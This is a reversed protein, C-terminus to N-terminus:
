IRPSTGSGGTSRIATSSRSSSCSRSPSAVASGTALFLASLLLLATINLFRLDEADLYRARGQRSDEEVDHFDNQALAVLFMVLLLLSYYIAEGPLPGAQAAGILCILVFPVAHAVRAVLGRFLAPQFFFYIALAIFAQSTAFLYAHHGGQWGMETVLRRVLTPLIAGNFLLVGYAMLGAAVGRWVAHTRVYVYLSTFLITAWLVVAEGAPFGAPPDYYLPNWGDPFRWNYFYYFKGLGHAFVDILPPVIGLFVGVLIVNISRRWPIPV